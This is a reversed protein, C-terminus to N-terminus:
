GKTDHHQTTDNTPMKACYQTYRVLEARIHGHKEKLHLCDLGSLCKLVSHM